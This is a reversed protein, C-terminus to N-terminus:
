DGIAEWLTVMSQIDPETDDIGFLSAQSNIQNGLIDEVFVHPFKDKSIGFCLVRKRNQPIGYDAVNITSYVFDYGLYQTDDQLRTFHYGDDVNFIGPVNEM